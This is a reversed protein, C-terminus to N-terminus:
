PAMAPNGGSEAGTFLYAIRSPRSQSPARAARLQTRVARGIRGPDAGATGARVRDGKLAAAQSLPLVHSSSERGKMQLTVSDM